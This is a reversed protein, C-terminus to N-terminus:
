LQKQGGVAINTAVVSTPHGVSGIYKSGPGKHFINESGTKFEKQQM